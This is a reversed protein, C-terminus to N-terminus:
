ARNRDQLAQIQLALGIAKDRLQANETKLRRLLKEGKPDPRAANGNTWMRLNYKRRGAHGSAIVGGNVRYESARQFIQSM